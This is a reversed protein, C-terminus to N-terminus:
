MKFVSLFFWCQIQKRTVLFTLQLWFCSLSLHIGLLRFHTFSLGFVFVELHLIMHQTFHPQFIKSNWSHFLLINFFYYALHLLAFFFSPFILYPGFHEIEPGWFRLDLPGGSRCRSINQRKYTWARCLQNEFKSPNETMWDSSNPDFYSFTLHTKVVFIIRWILSNINKIM